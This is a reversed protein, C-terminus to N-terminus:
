SCAETPRPDEIREHVRREQYARYEEIDTGPFVLDESRQMEEVIESFSPRQAPTAALCRQILDWFSDSM